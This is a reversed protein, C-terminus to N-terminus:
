SIDIISADKEIPADLTRPVSSTVACSGISTCLQLRRPRTALGGLKENASQNREARRRQGQGDAAGSAASLL